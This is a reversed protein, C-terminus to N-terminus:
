LVSTSNDGKKYLIICLEPRGFLPPVLYKEQRIHDKTGGSKLSHQILYDHFNNLKIYFFTGVTNFLLTSTSKFFISLGTLKLFIYQIKKNLLHRHLISLM